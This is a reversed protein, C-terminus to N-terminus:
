AVARKHAHIHRERAVPRLLNVNLVAHPLRTRIQDVPELASGIEVDAAVGLRHGLVHACGQHAGKGVDLRDGGLGGLARHRCELALPAVQLVRILAQAAYKTRTRLLPSAYREGVSSTHRTCMVYTIERMSRM